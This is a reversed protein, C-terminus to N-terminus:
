YHGGIGWVAVEKTLTITEGIAVSLMATQPLMLYHFASPMLSALCDVAPLAGHGAGAPIKVSGLITTGVGDYLQFFLTHDIADDNAAQLTDIRMDFAATAIATYSGPTSANTLFIGQLYIAREDFQGLPM